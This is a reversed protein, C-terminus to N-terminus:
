QQQQQLRVQLLYISRWMHTAAIPTQGAAHLFVGLTAHAHATEPHDM